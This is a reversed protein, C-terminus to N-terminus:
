NQILLLHRLFFKGYRHRFPFNGKVKDLIEKEKKATPIVDKRRPIRLVWERGSVDKAFVVQFDLGSNNVEMTEKRLSLQHQEALEMVQKMSKSM